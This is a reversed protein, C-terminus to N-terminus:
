LCELDKEDSTFLGNLSWISYSIFYECLYIYDLPCIFLSFFVKFKLIFMNKLHTDLM